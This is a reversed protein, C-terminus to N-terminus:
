HNVLVHEREPSERLVHKGRRRLPNLSKPFYHCDRGARLLKEGLDLRRRPWAPEFFAPPGTTTGRSGRTGRLWNAVTNSRRSLRLRFFAAAAECACDTSCRFSCKRERPWSSSGGGANKWPTSSPPGPTFPRGLGHWM